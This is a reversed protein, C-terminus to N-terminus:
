ANATQALADQCRDCIGAWSPDRSVTKVYRWCRECKIGDTREISVGIGPGAGAPAPRLEVDSVIFLMPLDRAYREFFALDDKPVSLVAKAQLSSGIRKDKRLPEIEALVQERLSTLRAWRDLLERDVLPELEDASPFLSLHVSESPAGPLHQWLQDATVSLIPAILRALGDAMVHMATQASRRERSRSGFTYLRDKSIDNYLASLDVTAFANVAQFVTPYDYSDYAGLVKLALEAYRGLIFRDVEEMQDRPVADVAPNFDYLNAILYRATNRFKRYAEVIRALIEKSVRLEERYDCSAVWLRLVEAGSDKIVDQPLITNGVSKSMKRGELDILFGHTLVQRFPPQGRTGLGVLLSSQFWGRHQDSGELYMDAPWTLEPRFPLVAEHSSGSDFWVDLINKEREFETHGCEACKLNAPLFEEIPREWWAVAGYTDFVAAAKEVMEATM